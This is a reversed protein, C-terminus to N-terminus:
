DPKYVNVNKNLQVEPTPGVMGKFPGENFNCGSNIGFTASVGAEQKTLERKVKISKEPAVEKVGKIGAGASINAGVKLGFDSVKNDGDFTIFLTESVGANAKAELPGANIKGINLSAGIGVALTSQKTQFYKEYSFLAGEGASFAIKDCDLEFQGVIFPISIELPCEAEDIANTEKTSNMSTFECPKIIKTQCISVMLGLYKMVYEYYRMNFKDDRLPHLNLYQWYLLEDFYQQYVHWGKKQWDATLIAFKPLYQNALKDYATCKEQTGPCNTNAKGDGCEKEREAFGAKLIKMENEYEDNLIKYDANFKKTVRSTFNNLDKNYDDELEGAMISCFGHFPHSMFEDKNLKRAAGNANMVQMAKQAEGQAMVAYKAGYLQAQKTAMERFAKHAADATAANDTSSCQAPLDYKFLNFYAPIKVRPRVLGAIKADKKIKRLKIQAPKSYASAISKEFYEIAKEKNGKTAEIQGATNCAEANGPEIKMSRGLHIMATDTEGLGAYAQGLNNLAMANAPFFQLVYKLLPIAKQEIGSMNLIAACNNLLIGDDPSNIASRIILLLAEERYNGYWGAVAVDGMKIGDNNYKATISQVSSTIGPPLKKSLQLYLDNLFGVLESKTLVKKPLTALLATQKTHFKWNDVNSYSGPDENYVVNTAANNNGQENKMAKKVASDNTYKKSLDQADKVMKDITAKTPQAFVLHQCLLCLIALSIRKKM